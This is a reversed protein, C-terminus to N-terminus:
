EVVDDSSSPYVESLEMNMMKMHTEYQGIRQQIRRRKTGREPDNRREERRRKKEENELRKEELRRHMIEGTATLKELAQRKKELLIEPCLGVDCSAMVVDKNIPWIGTSQFAKIITFRTASTELCDFATELMKVRAMPIGETKELRKDLKPGLQQKFSGFVVVDLPQLIHTANAPLYVVDINNKKFSEELEGNNKHTSHNDLIFLGRLSEDELKTRQSTIWPIIVDQCYNVFISKDMSGNQQPYFEGLDCLDIPLLPLTKGPLIFIPNPRLGNATISVGITFKYNVSTAPVMAKECDRSVLVNKPKNGVAVSTEDFNIIMSPHYNNQSVLREYHDFWREVVDVSSGVLRRPDVQKAKKKALVDEYRLFFSRHWTRSPNGMEMNINNEKNTKM